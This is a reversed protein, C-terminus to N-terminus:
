IKGSRVWARFPHNLWESMEDLSTPREEDRLTRDLRQWDDTVKEVFKPQAAHAPGWEYDM